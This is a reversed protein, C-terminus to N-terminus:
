KLVLPGGAPDDPDAVAGTRVPVTFTVVPGSSFFNVTERVKGSDPSLPNGNLAFELFNTLGDHDPDAKDAGEGAISVPGFQQRRWLDISTLVPAISEVVSGGARARARIGGEEPLTLGTLEGGGAVRTGTGLAVWD